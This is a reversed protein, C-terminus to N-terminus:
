SQANDNNHGDGGAGNSKADRSNGTGAGQSGKGQKQKGDHLGGDNGNLHGKAKPSTEDSGGKEHGEGKGNDKGEDGGTGEHHEKDDQKSHGKDTSAPIAPADSQGAAQSQPVPTALPAAGGSTVSQAAHHRARSGTSASQQAALNNGLGGVQRATASTGAKGAAGIQGHYVHYAHPGYAAGLVQGLGFSMICGALLTAQIGRQRLGSTLGTLYWM